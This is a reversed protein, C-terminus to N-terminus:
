WRASHGDPAQRAAAEPVGGGREAGRPEPLGLRRYLKYVPDEMPCPVRERRIPALPFLGGQQAHALTPAGVVIALVGAAPWSWRRRTRTRM